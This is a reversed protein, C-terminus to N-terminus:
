VASLHRFAEKLHLLDQAWFTIIRTIFNAFSEYGNNCDDLRVSQPAKAQKARAQMDVGCAVIEHTTM